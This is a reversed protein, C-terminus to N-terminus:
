FRLSFSILGNDIWVKFKIQIFHMKKQNRELNEQGTDLRRGLGEALGRVGVRTGVRLPM